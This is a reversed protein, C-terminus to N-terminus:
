VRGGSPTRQREVAHGLLEAWATSRDTADASSLTCAVPTAPVSTLASTAAPALPLESDCGCGPGCREAPEAADLTARLHDLQTAFSSLEAVLGRVEGVKGELLGRLRDQLTSCPGDAWLEVLDAIDDLALGMAKARGIFRLREVADDDYVRYGAETREPEPLLGVTEYYRLTSARFGSRRALESIPYGM